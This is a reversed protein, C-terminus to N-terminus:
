WVPVQGRKNRLVGKLSLAQQPHLAAQTAWWWTSSVLRGSVGRPLVAWVQREWNSQSSSFESGKGQHPKPHPFSLFPFFSLGIIKERRPSPLCSDDHSHLYPPEGLANLGISCRKEGSSESQRLNWAYWIAQNPPRKRSVGPGSQGLAVM